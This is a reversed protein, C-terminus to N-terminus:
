SWTSAFNKQTQRCYDKRKTSIFFDINEIVIISADEIFGTHGPSQFDEFLHHQICSEGRLFKRVNKKYYNLKKHLIETAERANQKFGKKRMDLYISCKDNCNLRHNIKYTKLTVSSTLNETKNVNKCAECFRRSCKFSGVSREIRYIKARLLHNSLKRGRRFFMM